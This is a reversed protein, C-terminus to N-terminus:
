IHDLLQSVHLYGKVIATIDHHRWKHSFMSSSADALNSKGNQIIWLYEMKSLVRGHDGLKKNIKKKAFSLALPSATVVVEEPFM